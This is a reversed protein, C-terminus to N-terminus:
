AKGVAQIELEIEIKDSVLVGGTELAQNWTLGYDSRLITTKAAFIRRTNGWPDKGGGLEELELTVPKTVGHITLDGTLSVGDAGKSVSTSAFTITPFKEADFFDASKLHTDRDAVGTDISAVDITAKVSSKALDTPDLALETTFSGFRGRVKSFVMHRVSFTVNSHANDIAYSM